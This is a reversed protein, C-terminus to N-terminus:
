NVLARLIDLSAGEGSKTIEFPNRRRFEDVMALRLADQVVGDTSREVGQGATEARYGFLM